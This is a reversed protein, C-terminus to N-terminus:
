FLAVTFKGKSRVFDIVLERKDPTGILQNGFFVRFDFVKREPCFQAISYVV